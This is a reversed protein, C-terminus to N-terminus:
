DCDVWAYNGEMIEAEGNWRYAVLKGGPKAVSYDLCAINKALPTPKGEMWYHGIFVPKENHGYDIVHDGQIPDDPIHTLASEPGLYVDKYTKGRGWWRVRIEHRRIGDKDLFSASEPLPIERGKLLTEIAQYQWTGRRSGERLLDDTLLASEGYNDTLRKIYEPDWCAHVVRLGDLELWLPLTKFWEITEQWRESHSEFEDLFAQHQLANKSNRPRLFGGDENPTHYGIANFEHNGMVAKAAGGDVMRRVLDIVRRQLPGRDVFDGVFIAQCSEHRFCSGSHVYGLMALLAELEDAKGHIDGIIDYM